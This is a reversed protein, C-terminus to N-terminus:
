CGLYGLAFVSYQVRGRKMEEFALIGVFLVVIGILTFGLVSRALQKSTEEGSEERRSLDIAQSSTVVPEASGHIGDDRVPQRMEAREHRWNGVRRLRASSHGRPRCRCVPCTMHLVLWSTICVKGFIHGCTLRVPVEPHLDLESDKSTLIGCFPQHCISCEADSVDLDSIPVKAILRRIWQRRIYKTAMTSINEPNNNTPPIELISLLLLSPM